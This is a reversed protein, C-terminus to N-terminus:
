QLILAIILLGLLVVGTGTCVILNVLSADHLDTDTM